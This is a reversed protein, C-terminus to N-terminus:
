AAAGSPTEDSSTEAKNSDRPTMVTKYMYTVALAGAAAAGVAIAMKKNQQLWSLNDSM